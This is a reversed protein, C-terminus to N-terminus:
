GGLEWGCGGQVGMARAGSPNPHAAADGDPGGRAMAPGRVPGEGVPDTGKGAREVVPGTTAAGRCQSGGFRELTM